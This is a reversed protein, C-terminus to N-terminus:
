TGGTRSRAMSERRDGLLRRGTESSLRSPGSYSQEVQPPNDLVAEWVNLDDADQCMECLADGYDEAFWDIVRMSWEALYKIEERRQADSLGAAGVCRVMNDLAVPVTYTCYGGKDMIIDMHVGIAETLGKYIRVAEMYSGAKELKGAERIFRGLSPETYGPVEFHRNMKRAIALDVEFRIDRYEGRAWGEFRGQTEPDAMAEYELLARMYAIPVRKTYPGQVAKWDVKANYVWGRVHM